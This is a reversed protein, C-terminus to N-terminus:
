FLKVDHSISGKNLMNLNKGNSPPELTIVVHKGFVTYHMCLTETVDGM